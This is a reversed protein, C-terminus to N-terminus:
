KDSQPQSKSEPHDAYEKRLGNTCGNGLVGLRLLLDADTDGPRTEAGAITYFSNLQLPHSEHFLIWSIQKRPVSQTGIDPVSHRPHVFSGSLPTKLIEDYGQQASPLKLKLSDLSIQVGLYAYMRLRDVCHLHRQHDVHNNTSERHICISTSNLGM